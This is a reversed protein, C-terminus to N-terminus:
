AQAGSTPPDGGGLFSEFNVRIAEGLVKLVDMSLGDFHVDMDLPLVATGMAITVSEFLTRMLETFEAGTLKQRMAMILKEIEGDEFMKSVRDAVDKESPEAGGVAAEVVGKLVTARLRVFTPLVPLLLWLVPASKSAPLKRFQFFRNGIEKQVAAM